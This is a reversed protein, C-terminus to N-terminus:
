VLRPCWEAGIPLQVLGGRTDGAHGCSLRQLGIFVESAVLAGLIPCQRGDRGPDLRRWPRRTVVFAHHGELNFGAEGAGQFPVMALLVPYRVSVRM